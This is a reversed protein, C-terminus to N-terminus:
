DKPFKRCGAHLAVTAGVPKEVIPSYSATLRYWAAKKLLPHFILRLGMFCCNEEVTVLRFIV